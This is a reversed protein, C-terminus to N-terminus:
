EAVSIKEDILFEGLEIVNIKDFENYKNISAIIIQNDKFDRNLIEMMKSTNEKDVEKGSPSDLIIPIKIGIKKELEIIYALKFAFVMKHLVAGSLEKLNTTFLYSNQENITDQLGLEDAYKIINNYMNAILVNDHKTKFDIIGDLEKQRKELVGIINKVLRADVNVTSLKADFSKLLEETSDFSLQSAEKKTKVARIEKKIKSLNHTVISQKAKLVHVNDNFGVLNNKTITILNGNSDYISLKMNEIFNIFNRNDNIVKNIRKLESSLSQEELELKILTIEDEDCSDDVLSGTVEIIKEQYEAINLLKKYKLLDNKILKLENEEEACDIDCLGRIYEEINFKISGIVTGRNLFTWGKEQDVYFVGLINKLINHSDTGYLQAHFIEAEDPLIYTHKIGSENVELYDNERIINYIVNKSTLNIIVKCKEFNIKKTSPIKYGLGYLLFRLLTTKGKSNNKSYILNVNESLEIKKHYFGEIIEIDNFIM